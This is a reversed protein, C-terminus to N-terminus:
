RAHEVYSHLEEREKAEKLEKALVLSAVEYGNLGYAEIWEDYKELIRAVMERESLMHIKASM